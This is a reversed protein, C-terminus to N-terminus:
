CAQTFELVAPKLKKGSTSQKEKLKGHLMAAHMREGFAKTTNVDVAYLEKAVEEFTKAPITKGKSVAVTQMLFDKYLEIVKEPDTVMWRQDELTPIWRRMVRGLMNTDLVDMAGIGHLPLM